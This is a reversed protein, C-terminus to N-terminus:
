NQYSVTLTKYLVSSTVVVENGESDKETITITFYIPVNATFRGSGRINLEFYDEVYKQAKELGENEMISCLSTIFANKTDEFYKKHIPTKGTNQDKTAMEDFLKNISQEISKNNLNVKIVNYGGNRQILKYTNGGYIFQYVGESIHSLSISSGNNDLYFEDETEVIKLKKTSIGNFISVYVSDNERVVKAHDLEDLVVEKMKTEYYETANIFADSPKLTIDAGLKTKLVNEDVNLNSKISSHNLSYKGNIFSSDSFGSISHGNNCKEGYRDSLCYKASVIDNKDEKTALLDYVDITYIDGQTGKNLYTYYKMSSASTVGWSDMIAYIFTPNAAGYIEDVVKGESYLRLSPAGGLSLENAQEFNAYKFAGVSFMENGQDDVCKNNDNVTGFYCLQATEGSDPIEYSYIPMKVYNSKIIEKLSEEYVECYNASDTDEIAKKSSVGMFLATIGAALLCIAGVVWGVVPVSSSVAGVAVLGAMVAAAGGAAVAIGGFAIGIDALIEAFYAGLTKNTCADIMTLGAAINMDFLVDMMGTEFLNERDVIFGEATTFTIYNGGNVSTDGQMLKKYQDLSSKEQIGTTVDTSANIDLLTYYHISNIRGLLALDYKLKYFMKGVYSSVDGCVTDMGDLTSLSSDRCLNNQIVANLYDEMNDYEGSQILLNSIWTSQTVDYNKVDEDTFYGTLGGGGFLLTVGQSQKNQVREVVNSVGGACKSRVSDANEANSNFFECESIDGNTNALNMLSYFKARKATDQKTKLDDSVDAIPGLIDFAKTVLGQKDEQHSFNDWAMLDKALTYYILLKYEPNELSFNGNVFTESYPTVGSYVAQFMLNESSPQGEEDGEPLVVLIFDRAAMLYSYYMEKDMKIFKAQSYTTYANISGGKGVVYNEKSQTLGNDAKGCASVLPIVICIMLVFCIVNRIRFFRKKLM